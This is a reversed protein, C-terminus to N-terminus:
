SRHVERPDFNSRAKDLQTRRHQLTAVLVAAAIGVVTFVDALNFIAFWSVSFYDVVAGSLVGHEGRFTRDIMNGWGGGVAIAMLVTVTPNERRIVRRIVWVTLISLIILIGAALLPGVRAGLGFAAGPNLVLDLDLTPIMTPVPEGYPLTLIAVGKAAQDAAIAFLGAFLARMALRRRDLIGTTTAAVPQDTLM